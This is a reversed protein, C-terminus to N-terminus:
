SPLPIAKPDDARRLSADPRHARPMTGRSLAFRETMHCSGSM